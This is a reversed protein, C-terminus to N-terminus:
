KQVSGDRSQERAIAVWRESTSDAARESGYGLSHHRFIHTARATAKLQGGASGIPNAGFTRPVLRDFALGRAADVVSGGGGRGGFANRRRGRKGGTGFKFAGTGM